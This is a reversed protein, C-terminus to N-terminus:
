SQGTLVNETSLFYVIFGKASSKIIAANQMMAPANHHPILNATLLLPETQHAFPYIINVVGIGNLSARSDRWTLVVSGVVAEDASSM